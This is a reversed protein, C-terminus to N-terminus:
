HLRIAGVAISATGEFSVLIELAQASASVERVGIFADNLAVTLKEREALESLSEALRTRLEAIGPKLDIKAGQEIAVRIREHLVTSVLAWLENDVHPTFDLGTLAITQSQPDVHVDALLYVQGQTDFLRGETEARFRLGVALRGAAPYVEVAEIWIRVRGLPSDAEFPQKSLQNELMDSLQEYGVRIPVAIRTVNADASIASLDPLAGSDGPPVADGSLVETEGELGLALRLRDAEYRIGSFGIRRPVLHLTANGEGPLTLPVQYAHWYPMVAAKVDECSVSSRLAAAANDLERQLQPGVQGDINIWWNHVIELAAKDTWSFGASANFVPCWDNSLDASIDATVTLAARFNKRDLGLAKAVDGTFGAQGAASLPATVQLRDALAVVQFPGERRVEYHYDVDQCVERTQNLTVVETVLKALAGIAKGVDGGVRKEITKKIQETLQACVRDRGRDGYRLPVARELVEAVAQLPISVTAQISSVQRPLGLAGGQRPPRESVIGDRGQWWLWGGIGVTAIAVALGVALWRRVVGYSGGAM